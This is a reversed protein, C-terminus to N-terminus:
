ATPTGVRSRRASLLVGVLGISGSVAFVALMAPSTTGTVADGLLVVAATGPVLGVATGLLYPRWGVSTVGFTYNLPAFPIAPVLRTSTVTLLGRASLRSELM